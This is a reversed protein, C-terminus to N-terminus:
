SFWVLLIVWWCDCVFWVDFVFCLYLFLMVFIVFSVCWGFWLYFFRFCIVYMCVYMCVYFVCWSLYFFWVYMVQKSDYWLITIYMCTTGVGHTNLNDEAHVCVINCCACVYNHRVYAHVIYSYCWKLLTFMWYSM